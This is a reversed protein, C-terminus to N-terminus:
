NDFEVDEEGEVDMAELEAMDLEDYYADAANYSVRRVPMPSSQMEAAEGIRTLLAGARAAPDGPDVTLVGNRYLYAPLQNTPETDSEAQAFARSAVTSILNAVASAPVATGGVSVDKKGSPGLALSMLSQLVEPRQILGLLVGAPNSAGASGPATQPGSSGGGVLGAIAPLASAIVSGAGGGGGIAGAVAPLASAIVSAPISPASGPAHAASPGGSALASGVGGILAGGLCGWPGLACGTAAGSVIGPLAKGAVQAVTPAAQKFFHGVDDFFGEMADANLGQTALTAEIQEPRLRALDPSLATRLSPYPDNADYEPLYEPHGARFPALSMATSM